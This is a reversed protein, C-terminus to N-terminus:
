ALEIQMATDAVCSEDPFNHGAITKFSTHLLINYLMLRVLLIKKCGKNERFNKGFRNKIIKELACYSSARINGTVSMRRSALQLPTQLRSCYKYLRRLCVRSCGM